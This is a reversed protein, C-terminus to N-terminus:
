ADAFFEPLVLARV